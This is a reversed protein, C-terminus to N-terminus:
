GIKKKSASRAKAYALRGLHEQLAGISDMPSPGDAKVWIAQTHDAPLSLAFQHLSEAGGGGVCAMLTLSRRARTLAVFFASRSTHVLNVNDCGLVIVHDASLGKAGVITTVTIASSVASQGLYGDDGDAETATGIPLRELSRALAEVDGSLGVAAVAQAEQTADSEEDLITRVAECKDLCSRITEHELDALNRGSGMAERLLATVAEQDVGEHSLVKRLSFNQSPRAGAYYYDRLWYEAGLEEDEPVHERVVEELRERAGGVNLFTMKRAPTLILLYPDKETGAALDTHRQRIAADHEALFQEIYSVGTKPSSSAVINVLGSGEDVDLPLFVKAISEAPRTSSLFAAAAGCVHFSCRSCFPLMANVFGTNQYYGRIIDPHARRLEEYLVQDDDGALLVAPSQEMLARILAEEALNFDQFEDIIFLTEAVLDPSEIVAQTAFLILDVFTLANYFQELRVHQNRLTGWDRATPPTGDYLNPLLSSWPFDSSEFGDCLSICDLWVMEEWHPTIVLCYQGLPVDHTGRAREVISRAMRHLTMVDVRGKDEDSLDADTRIDTRLDDALKRVFTAVSIRHAPHAVLWRRLRAKFLTSKGTGPGAVLVMRTAGHEAIADSNLNRVAVRDNAKLPRLM